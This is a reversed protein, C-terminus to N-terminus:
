EYIIGARFGINNEERLPKQEAKLRIEDMRFNESFMVKGAKRAEVDHKYLYFDEIRLSDDRGKADIYTDANKVTVHSMYVSRFHPYGKEKPEVPTLMVKWHAPLEKGEYEAPLKSYSYSPNWNLDAVLVNKVDKGECRTVYIHEITGGRNIASKLRLMTKTGESRLDYALVQRIGGSTESGITVLGGGKAATCRRIVVRETPRNVRLGDADRGAKLCINDDNCDIYADEVLIDSSSDIDIGDTSPGHGGLNNNIRIGDVTCHDSYVVQCGWFGTRLLTFDKLSIDSSKSVVIGRIRKADYDVIWRLGRKEYDKRMAWYKNWCFAGRCDITGKGTLAANRVGEFNIVAAPWQMEIGAIRTFSEPYDDFDESAILVVGQPVHLNVGDKVFLAGIRYYGERMTVIGGGDRSCADIAAQIASTSLVATDRKLGFDEAYFVKDKPFVKAGVGEAWSLDPKHTGFDFTDQAKVTCLSWLICCLVMLLRGNMLKKKLESERCLGTPHLYM